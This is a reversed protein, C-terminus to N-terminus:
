EHDNPLTTLNDASVPDDPSGGFRAVDAGRWNDM